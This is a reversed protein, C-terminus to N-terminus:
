FLECQQINLDTSFANIQYTGKEKNDYTKATEELIQALDKPTYPYFDRFFDIVLIQGKNELKFILLSKKGRSNDGNHDDGYYQENGNHRLGTILACDKWNRRDKIRFYTDIGFSHSIGRFLELRVIEPYQPKKGQEVRSLQYVTYNKLERETTYIFRTFEVVSHNFRIKM